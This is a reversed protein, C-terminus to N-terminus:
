YNLCVSQGLSQGISANSIYKSLFLRFIDSMLLYRNTTPTQTNHSSPADLSWSQILSFWVPYELREKYPSNGPTLRQYCEKKRELFVPTYKEHVRLGGSVAAKRPAPYKALKM